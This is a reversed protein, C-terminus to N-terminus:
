QAAVFAVLLLLLVMCGGAKLRRRVPLGSEKEKEEVYSKAPEVGSIYYRSKPDRLCSLGSSGLDWPLMAGAMIVRHIGM